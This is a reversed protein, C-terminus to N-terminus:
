CYFWLKVHIVEKDPRVADALTQAKRHHSSVAVQYM